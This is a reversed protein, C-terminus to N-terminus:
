AAAGQVGGDLERAGAALSALAGELVSAQLRGQELLVRGEVCGSPRQELAGLAAPGEGRAAQDGHPAHRASQGVEVAGLVHSGLMERARESQAGPARLLVDQSRVTRRPSEQSAAAANCSM